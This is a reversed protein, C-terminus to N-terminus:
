VETYSDPYFRTRPRGARCEKVRRGRDSLARTLGGLFCGEAPLLYGAGTCRAMAAWRRDLTEAPPKSLPSGRPGAPDSGQGRGPTSTLGVKGITRLGSPGGVPRRCPRGAGDGSGSGM